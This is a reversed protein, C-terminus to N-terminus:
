EDNCSSRLCRTDEGSGPLGEGDLNNPNTFQNPDEALIPSCTSSAQFAPDFVRENAVIGNLNQEQVAPDFACNPDDGCGGLTLGAFAM